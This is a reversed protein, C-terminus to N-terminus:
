RGRPAASAPSRWDYETSEETMVQSKADWAYVTRVEYGPTETPERVILKGDAVEVAQTRQAINLIRNMVGDKLMYVWITLLHSTGGDVGVILEDRGDGTLDHYEPAARSLLARDTQHRLHPDERASTSARRALVGAAVYGM